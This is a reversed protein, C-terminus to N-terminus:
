RARTPSASQFRLWILALVGLGAFLIGHKVHVTGFIGVWYCVAVAFFAVALVIALIKM